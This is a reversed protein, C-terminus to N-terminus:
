IERLSNKMITLAADEDVERLLGGAFFVYDADLYFTAKEPLLIDSERAPDRLVQRLATEGNGSFVLPGGTGIVTQVSTLNKGRQVKKIGASSIQQIQGAHRRASIRVAGEALAKDVKQQAETGALERNQTVWYSIVSQIEEWSLGTDRVMRELGIESCLSNSSERMGLDGEVTRKHYSEPVGVLKAGDYPMQEAYSHIDTTAGGVDVIMLDGLGPQNETGQALLAGASLVAAPTPMVMRDLLGSVKDLGKMNIIRHLFVERIIEEVQNKDIQGVDPIINRAIYCEKKEQTFLRRVEAAGASNGAFIVPIHLHSKALLEANHLLVKTGSHEYGGCFLLIEL